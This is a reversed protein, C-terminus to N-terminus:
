RIERAGKCACAYSCVRVRLARTRVRLCPLPQSVIRLVSCSAHETASHLNHVHELDWM